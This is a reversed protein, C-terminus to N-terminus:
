QKCRFHHAFKLIAYKFLDVIYGGIYFLSLSDKHLEQPHLVGLKMDAYMSFRALM